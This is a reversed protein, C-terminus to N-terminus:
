ALAWSPMQSESSMGCVAASAPWSHKTCEICVSAMLWSGPMVKKWVPLWCGPRGDKPQRDGDRNFIRLELGGAEALHALAPVDRRCDSSWDESIVLIKAPGNPKAALWRIAAAQRDTLAAKAYRDRFIASNDRRPGGTSGGDAHYVGGFAERALNEPSGVYTVYEDFTRGRAFREATIM